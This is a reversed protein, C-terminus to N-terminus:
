NSLDITHSLREGTKPHFGFLVFKANKLGKLDVKGKLEKLVEKPNIKSPEEIYRLFLSGYAVRPKLPKKSMATEKIGEFYAIFYPNDKTPEHSYRNIAIRKDGTYGRSPDNIFKSLESARRWGPRKRELRKLNEFVVRTQGRPKGPM